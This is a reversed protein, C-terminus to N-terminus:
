RKIELVTKFMEDAAQMMKASAEYAHQYRIMNSTEEDISVGSLRERFSNSQALIGSAQEADLRAKGAELGINGITQLYKEELTISNEGLIREHQLKSIAIAVRNDGPSNPALGATINSLDDEVMSSIKIQSAAEDQDLPLDFFDIGTTPGRKDFMPPKGDESIELRRNVFGQRHINNVSKAFEFAIHDTDVQLKRIDSNRVKVISALQGSQFTDTIKQNPRDRLVIEVSGSMHNTSNDKNESIVALEQVNTGTVLTGIGQATVVFRNKEDSYTHVKFNEALNRLALDRQDRFDGTEGQTAELTTIKQNLDAVEHLIQNIDNVSSTIKKDINKAQSDLTERIRHFDKVVLSANDKVVSRITENEPQNALERFANFFKNLTQNLGDSDLENFISEVQSLQDSRAEYYKNNALASNLRKEIFEDNYRSIEKVRVGTGQILGGSNIPNATSQVVKQRSYGESNVNALNHGTVELSKKSAYLGSKGISLLDAV